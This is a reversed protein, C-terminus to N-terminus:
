HVFPSKAVTQLAPRFHFYLRKQGKLPPVTKWKLSIRMKSASVWWGGAAGQNEQRMKLTNEFSWNSNINLLQGEGEKECLDAGVAM